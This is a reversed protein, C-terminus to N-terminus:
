RQKFPCLWTEYDQKSIRGDHYLIDLFDIWYKQKGPIDGRLEPHWIKIVKRCIWVAEKKTLYEM